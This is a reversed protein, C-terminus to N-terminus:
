SKPENVDKQKDFIALAESLADRLKRLEIEGTIVISEAPTYAGDDAVGPSTIALSINSNYQKAKSAKGNIRAISGYIYSSVPFAKDIYVFTDTEQIIM